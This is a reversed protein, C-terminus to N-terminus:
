EKEMRRKEIMSKISKVLDDDTTRSKVLVTVNCKDKVKVDYASFIVVPTDSKKEERLFPLLDLGSGDPLVADLIVMDFSEEALMERAERLTSAAVIEAIDRFIISVVKVIDPDDEIHLIRPKPRRTEMVASKLAKILRKRDIPKDIWDFVEYTEGSLEAQGREVYASVVVIPISRTRKERRLDRILSIGDQGPLSIDVTIADYHNEALLQKAQQANLSVDVDFGSFKLMAKLLEVVARSDECILIRPRAAALGTLSDSLIASADDENCEPLEFYFSTGAYADSVFGIRGGLREIIAKSISLGLGTGGQQRTDSSDAQAFKQFIRGRFEEPIGPGSDVVSVRIIGNDKYVTVEVVGNQPSFKIANSLLNTLVQLLRDSDVKVKAGQVDELVKITVGLLSAYSRNSEVADEILPMLEMPREDFTMKGSEIKEIDLINNILRVLRETNNVAIGLLSGAQEPIDGMVGGTILGLSARISTLPTRLEHSVTSVFESKRRDNEKLEGAQRELITNADELWEMTGRVQELTPRFVFIAIMLLVVINVALSVTELNQLFAVDKESEKQYQRVIRDLMGLLETSSARIYYLHPAGTKLQSEPAISLARAHSIYGTVRMDLSVPPTFYMARIQPPVAKIVGIAPDNGYLLLRHSSELLDITALLEKRIEDREGAETTNILRESLMALRQTLMRQRGAINVIGTNHKQTSIIQYMGSHSIISIFALVLLAFIYNQRITKISINDM